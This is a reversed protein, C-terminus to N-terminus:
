QNLAKHIRLLLTDRVIRSGSMGPNHVLRKVELCIGCLCELQITNLMTTGSFVGVDVWCRYLQLARQCGQTKVAMLATILFLFAELIDHTAMDALQELLTLPQAGATELFRGLLRYRTLLQEDHLLVELMMPREAHTYRLFAYPLDSSLLEDFYAQRHVTSHQIREVHTRSRITPLLQSVHEAQMLIFLSAKPEELTKLLANACQQTMRESCEITLVQLGGLTSSGVIREMCSRLQDIKITLSSQTEDPALRMLDPHAGQNFASCSVCSDHCHHRDLCLLWKSVQRLLHLGGIAKPIALVSSAPWKNQCIRRHISESQEKLWQMM